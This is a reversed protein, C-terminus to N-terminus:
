VKKTKQEKKVEFSDQYSEAKRMVALAIAALKRAINKKATRQDM